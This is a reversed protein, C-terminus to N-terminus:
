NLPYKELIKQKKIEYEEQNIIAMKLCQELLQMEETRKAGNDVSNISIDDEPIDWIDDLNDDSKYKNPNNVTLNNVDSQQEKSSSKVKL